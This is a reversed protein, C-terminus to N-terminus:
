IRRSQCIYEDMMSAIVETLFLEPPSMAGEAAAGALGRGGAAATAPEPGGAATPAAPQASASSAVTALASLPQFYVFLRTPGGADGTCAFCTHISTVDAPGVFM